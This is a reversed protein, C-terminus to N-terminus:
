FNNKMKIIKDVKLKTEQELFFKNVGPILKLWKKILEVIKNVRVKTEKLLLAIKKTTEEGKTQFEKQKAPSMKLFIDGLGDALIKDIAEERRKQIAIASSQASLGAEEVIKKEPVVFKDDKGKEVKNTEVRKELEPEIDKKSEKNSETETIKEVGASKVEPNEISNVPELEAENHSAENELDIKELNTDEM